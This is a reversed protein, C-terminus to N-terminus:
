IRQKPPLIPIKFARKADAGIYGRAVVPDIAARHGWLARRTFVRARFYDNVAM